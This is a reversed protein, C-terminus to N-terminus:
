KTGFIRDGADGLGPVIYGHENLKEDLVGVFIDVDPHEKQMRAVGEPAAIICMFRINKVGKDKLMQIAAVSSGGTALMPDVVFVEREDCDAPLKCYYEVPELTEPDRYLGIHGVKAAPIMTLMGEVMGLGARLIPVVALKKGALEKAVTRCIPTEVEVDQLKLDRTAEYCMLMAIEGVMARFDRSGTEKRRIIGIKHQILPHDMVYINSM